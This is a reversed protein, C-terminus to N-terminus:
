DEDKIMRAIAEAGQQTTNVILNSNSAVATEQKLEGLIEALVKVDRIDPDDFIKKIAKMSIGDLRTSRSGKALPEYLVQRLAEAIAKRERRKRGSAIGGAKGLARAESKTRQSTPILNQENMIRANQALM